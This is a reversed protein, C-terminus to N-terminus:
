SEKQLPKNYIMIKDKKHVVQVKLIMVRKNIMLMIRNSNILYNKLKNIKIIKSNKIKNWIILLEKIKMLKKFKQKQNILIKIKNTHIQILIIVIIQFLV